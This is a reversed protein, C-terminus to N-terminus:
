ENNQQNAQLEAVKTIEKIIEEAEYKALKRTIEEREEPGARKWDDFVAMELLHIKTQLEPSIM